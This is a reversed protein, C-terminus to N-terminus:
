IRCISVWCARSPPAFVDFQELQPMLDGDQTPLDVAGVQLGRIPHTNAASFSM